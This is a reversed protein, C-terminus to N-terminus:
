YDVGGSAPGSDVNVKLTDVDNTSFMRCPPLEDYNHSDAENAQEGVNLQNHTNDWRRVDIAPTTM